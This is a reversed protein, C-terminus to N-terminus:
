EKMLWLADENFFARLLAGFWLFFAQFYVLLGATHNDAKKIMSVGNWKKWIM